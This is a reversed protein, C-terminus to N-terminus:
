YPLAFGKILSLKSEFALYSPLILSCVGRERQAIVGGGRGGVVGGAKEEGEGGRVFCRTLSSCFIHLNTYQRQNSPAYYQQTFLLRDSASCTDGKFKESQSEVRSRSSFCAQRRM